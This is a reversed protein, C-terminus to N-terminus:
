QSTKDQKDTDIQALKKRLLCCFNEDSVAVAAVASKGVAHGLAICDSAIKIHEVKYYACKDSIKKSTNESTDSAEVVIIDDKKVSKGKKQLMECIMPVGIIAKGAGRCLGIAGLLGKEDAM